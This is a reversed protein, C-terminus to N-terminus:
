NIDNKFNILNIYILKYMGFSLLSSVLFSIIVLNVGGILFLIPVILCIVVSYIIDYKFLNSTHDTKQIVFQRYYQGKIMFIAGLLSITTGFLQTFQNDFFIKDKNYLTILILFTITLYAYFKFKGLYKIKINKKIITPGFSINFLTGPLSGIAFSAFYIGALVKGCLILITIRWFLNSLSIALSSFFAPSKIIDFFIKSTSTLKKNLQFIGFVLFVLYLFNFFIIVYLFDIQFIFSFIILLSFILCLFLYNIFKKLDSKIEYYTLIIECQWQILILITIQLLIEFYVFNYKYLIVINAILAFSSITLRFIIFSYINDINNKSILISRLNASFIQTFIINLGIVIGLEATLEYNKFLSSIILILTPIFLNLGYTISQIGINKQKSFLDEIIKM